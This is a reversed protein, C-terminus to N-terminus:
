ECLVVLQHDQSNGLKIQSVSGLLSHGDLTIDTVEGPLNFARSFALLSIGITRPNSGDVQLDFGPVVAQGQSGSDIVAPLKLGPLNITQSIPPKIPQCGLNVINVNVSRHNLYNGLAVLGAATITVLGLPGKLSTIIKGIKIIKVKTTTKNESTPPSALDKIRGVESTLDKWHGLFLLLLKKRKKQKPTKEPLHELSLDIVDGTQIKQIKAALRTISELHKDIPPNLGKILATIKQIKDLTTTPQSLLEWATKLREAQVDTLKKM